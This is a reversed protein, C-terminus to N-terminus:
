AFDRKRTPSVAFVSFWFALLYAGRVFILPSEVAMTLLIAPLFLLFDYRRDCYAFYFLGGVFVVLVVMGPIGLQMGDALLQNHPHKLLIDTDIQAQLINDMTGLRIGTWPHRDIAEMAIDRMQMREGDAFFRHSLLGNFIFGGVIILVFSAFLLKKKQSLFFARVLFFFMISLPIFLMALRSQTIFAFCSLAVLGYIIEVTSVTQERYLYQRVAVAMFIAFIGLFIYTPHAFHTWHLMCFSTALTPIHTKLYFKDFSFPSLISQDYYQNLLLSVLIICSLYVLVLRFSFSLFVGWETRTPRWCCLALPLGLLPLRQKLTHLADKTEASGILGTAQFLYYAVLLIFIGAPLYFKKHVIGYIYALGSFLWVAGIAFGLFQGVAAAVFSVLLLKRFLTADMRSIARLGTALTFVGMVSVFIWVFFPPTDKKPDFVQCDKVLPYLLSLLLIGLILFVVNMNQRLLRVFRVSFTESM